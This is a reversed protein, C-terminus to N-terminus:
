GNRTEGGSDDEVLLEVERVRRGSMRTVRISVRGVQVTDGLRPVRGLLCAVLGAMTDVPPLKGQGELLSRWDRLSVDGAIAFRDAGLKQVAPSEDGPEDGPEGFVEELVDALTVIGATGGYEDVAIALDTRRSQLFRLTDTARQYESVYAPHQVAGRISGHAADLYLDRADVVGVIEDRVQRFVVIKTRGTGRALALVDPVSAGEEAMVMDVRPTMFEKVKREALDLVESVIASAGRTMEGEEAAAALVLKLEELDGARAEQRSLRRLLATMRGLSARVPALSRHIVYMPAATFRIYTRPALVALSKPLVEGFVIVAVLAALSLGVATAPAGAAAARGALGAALTFFLINVLMNCFLVTALFESPAGALALAARGVPGAARRFFRLDAKTLSFLATESGSFFGSLGLLGLMLLLQWSSEALIHM